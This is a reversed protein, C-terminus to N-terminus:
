GVEKARRKETTARCKRVTARSKGRKGDTLVTAQSYARMRQPLLLTSSRLLGTLPKARSHSGARFATNESYLANAWSDLMRIPSAAIILCLRPMARTRPDM